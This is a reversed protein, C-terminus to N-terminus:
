WVWVLGGGCCGAGGGGSGRCALSLALGAPVAVLACCGLLPLLRLCGDILVAPLGLLCFLHLINRLIVSVM